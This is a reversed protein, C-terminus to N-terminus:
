SEDVTEVTIQRKRNAVLRLVDPRAYHGAADFNQREERVRAHDINAVILKEEGVVPEVIVQAVATDSKSGSGKTRVAQSRGKAATSM